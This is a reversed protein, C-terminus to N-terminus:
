GDRQEADDKWIKSGSKPKLKFTCLLFLLLLLELRSELLCKAVDHRGVLGFQVVLPVGGVGHWVRSSKEHAAVIVWLNTLIIKLNKNQM